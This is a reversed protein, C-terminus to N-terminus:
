SLSISCPYQSGFFELSFLLDFQSELESIRSKIFPILDLCERRIASAHKAPLIKLVLSGKILGSL